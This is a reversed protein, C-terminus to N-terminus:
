ASSPRAMAYRLVLFERCSETCLCSGLHQAVVLEEQTYSCLTLDYGACMARCWNNLTVATTALLLKDVANSENKGLSHNIFYERKWAHQGYIDSGPSLAIVWTQIFSVASTIAHVELHDLSVLCSSINSKGSNRSCPTYFTLIPIHRM